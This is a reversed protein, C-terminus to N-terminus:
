QNRVMTNGILPLIKNIDFNLNLTNNQQQVPEVSQLHSVTFNIFQSKTKETIGKIDGDSLKITINLHKIITRIKKINNDFTLKFLEQNLHKQQSSHPIQFQKSNFKNWYSYKNFAGNEALKLDAADLVQHTHSLQVNCKM